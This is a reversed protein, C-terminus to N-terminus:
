AEILQGERDTSLGNGPREIGGPLQGNERLLGVAPSAPGPHQQGAVACGHERAPADVLEFRIGCRESERRGIVDGPQPETGAEGDFRATHQGHAVRDLVRCGFLDDDLPELRGKGRGFRDVVGRLKGPAPRALLHRM